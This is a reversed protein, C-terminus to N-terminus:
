LSYQLIFLFLLFQDFSLREKLLAIGRAKQSYVTGRSIGLQDAVEQAELGDFVLMQMVKKCQEPLSEINEQIVKLTELYVVQAEVSFETWEQQALFTEEKKQLRKTKDLFNLATNKSSIYLFARVSDLSDFNGCKDWLKLFIDHAIEEAQFREIGMKTLFLCLAPYNMKFIIEFASVEGRKFQALLDLENEYKSSSKM